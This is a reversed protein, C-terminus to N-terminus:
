AEERDLFSAISETSAITLGDSISQSTSIYSLAMGSGFILSFIEWPSPTDDLKTFIIQDPHLTGFRQIVERTVLNSMSASVVLHVEDADAETLFNEIEGLYESNRQSGGPTDILILECQSMRQITGKLDEAQYVVEVPINLYKCYTTIQDIAGIRITDTTIVGVRHNHQLSFYWALKAVMTTKGVGTPGVLAVVHQKGTLQIGTSFPLKQAIGEAIYRTLEGSYGFPGTDLWNKDGTYLELQNQVSELESKLDTIQSKLSMVSTDDAPTLSKTMDDTPMMGDSIEATSKNEGDPRHAWVEVREDDGRGAANGDRITRMDLVVAEEGLEQRVLDMAERMNTAYFKRLEM